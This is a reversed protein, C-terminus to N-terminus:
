RRKIVYGSFEFTLLNSPQIGQMGLTLDVLDSAAGNLVFGNGMGFLDKGQELGVGFPDAFAFGVITTAQRATYSRNFHCEGTDHCPTKFEAFLDGLVEHLRCQLM